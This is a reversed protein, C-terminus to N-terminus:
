IASTPIVLAKIGAITYLWEISIFYTVTLHCSVALSKAWEGCYVSLKGNDCFQYIFFQFYYMCWVFLKGRKFPSHEIHLTYTFFFTFSFIFIIKVPLKCHPPFVWLPSKINYGYSTCLLYNGFASAAVYFKKGNKPPFNITTLLAPICLM